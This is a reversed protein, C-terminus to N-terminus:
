ADLSIIKKKSPRYLLATHGLVEAVAAGTLGALEAAMEKAESKKTVAFKCRVLEGRDLQENVGVLSREISGVQVYQLTKAAALRGAHARLARRQGGSLEPAPAVCGQLLARPPSSQIPRSCPLHYSLCGHLLLLLILKILRM